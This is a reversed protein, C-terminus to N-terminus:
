AANAYRHPTLEGSALVWRIHAPTMRPSKGIYTFPVRREQIAEVVWNETKKFVVAAEAPTYCRLEPDPDASKIQNVLHEVAAALTEIRSALDPALPAAAPASALDNRTM